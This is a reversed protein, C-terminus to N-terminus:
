TARSNISVIAIGATVMSTRSFDLFVHYQGFAPNSQRGLRPVLL